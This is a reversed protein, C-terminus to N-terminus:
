PCSSGRRRTGSEEMVQNLRCRGRLRQSYRLRPTLFLMFNSNSSAAAAPPLGLCDPLTDGGEDSSVFVHHRVFLSRRLGSLRVEKARERGLLFRPRTAAPEVTPFQEDRDVGPVIEVPLAPLAAVPTRAVAIAAAVRRRVEIPELAASPIVVGEVRWCRSTWHRGDLRRSGFRRLYRQM